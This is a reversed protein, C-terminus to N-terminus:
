VYRFVGIWYAVSIIAAPWMTTGGTFRIWLIYIFATGVLSLFLRDGRTTPFRLVGVRPSEPRFAALLTMVILLVAITAFFVATYPNWAMWAM